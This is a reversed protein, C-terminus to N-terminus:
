EKKFHPYLKPFVRSLYSFQLYIHPHPIKSILIYTHIPSGGGENPPPFDFWGDIGVRKMCM